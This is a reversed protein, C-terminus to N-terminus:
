QGWLRGETSNIVQWLWKSLRIALATKSGDPLTYHIEATKARDARDWSKCPRLRGELYEGPRRFTFIPVGCGCQGKHIFRDDAMAAAVEEGNVSEWKHGTDKDM